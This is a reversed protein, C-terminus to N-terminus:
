LFAATIMFIRQRRLLERDSTSIQRRDRGGNGRSIRVRVTDELTKKGSMKAETPKM